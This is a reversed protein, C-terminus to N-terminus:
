AGRQLYAQRRTRARICIGMFIGLYNQTTVDECAVQIRTPYIEICLFFGSDTWVTTAGQCGSGELLPALYICSCPYNAM